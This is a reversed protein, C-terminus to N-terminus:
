KVFILKETSHSNENSLQVFYVGSPHNSANWVVEHEGPDLQEKLLTEVLRGSIDYIQLSVVIQMEVSFHITTAPNFPNPYAPYLVFSGPLVLENDIISLTDDWARGPTGHDGDGYTVDSMSWVSDVGNDMDVDTLFMSAGSSFPFSSTYDIEDVMLGDDDIM